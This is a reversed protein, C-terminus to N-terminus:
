AATRPVTGPARQRMPRFSDRGLRAGYMTGDRGIEVAKEGPALTIAHASLDAALGLDCDSPIAIIGPKVPLAPDLVLRSRPVLAGSIRPRCLRTTLIGAELPM